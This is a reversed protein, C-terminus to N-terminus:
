KFRLSSLDTLRFSLLYEFDELLCNKTGLFGRSLYLKQFYSKRVSNGIIQTLQLLLFRIRYSLSQLPFSKQIAKFRSCIFKNCTRRVPKLENFWFDSPPATQLAQHQFSTYPRGVPVWSDGSHQQKAFFSQQQSSSFMKPPQQLHSYFAPDGWWASHYKDPADPSVCFQWRLTGVPCM